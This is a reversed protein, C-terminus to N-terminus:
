VCSSYSDRIALVRGGFGRNTAFQNALRGQKIVGCKEALLLQYYCLEQLTVKFMKGYNCAWSDAMLL